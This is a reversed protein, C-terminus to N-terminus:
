SVKEKLWDKNERLTEVTEHPVANRPRLKAAQSKAVAYGIGAAILGVIAFGLPFAAGPSMDASLLAYGIAISIATLVLLAGCAALLGGVGIGTVRKGTSSAYDSLETRALNVEQRFLRAVEDRLDRLLSATSRREVAPTTVTRPPETFSQTM